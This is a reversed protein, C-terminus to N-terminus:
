VRVRRQEQEQRPERWAAEEPRQWWAALTGELWAAQVQASERPQQEPELRAQALVLEPLELLVLVLESLALRALAQVPVLERLELRELVQAQELRGPVPVQQEERLLVQEQPEWTKVFSVATPHSDPM